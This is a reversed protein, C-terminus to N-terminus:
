GSILYTRSYDGDKNIAMSSTSQEYYSMAFVLVVCLILAPLSKRCSMHYIHVCMEDQLLVLHPKSLSVGIIAVAVEPERGKSGAKTVQQINELLRPAM